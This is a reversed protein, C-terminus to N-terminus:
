EVKADAFAGVVVANARLKEPSGTVLTFEV